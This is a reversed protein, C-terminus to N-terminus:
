DFSYKLTFGTYHGTYPQVQLKAKSDRTKHLHPILIGMAAGVVTGTIVDTPFHKMAKVRYYGVISPPILAATFLWYKKAGLEPHYDSYVKAMFFSASATTSTHGSFFSNQTGGATRESLPIQNNYVLPRARNFVSANGVYVINNIGHTEFYLIMLDFWDKRIKKDLGLLVPLGLTVNLGWDSIDHFKLRDIPDQEAAVRDFAWINKTNLALVEEEKLGDKSTLHGFGFYSGVFLGVTSPIELKRNIKYVSSDSKLSQGCILNTGVSMGIILLWIYKM